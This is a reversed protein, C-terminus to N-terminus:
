RDRIWRPIEPEFAAKGRKWDWMKARAAISFGARTAPPGAPLIKSAAM